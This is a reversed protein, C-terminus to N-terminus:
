DFANRNSWLPSCITVSSTSISCSVVASSWSIGSLADYTWQSYSFKPSRTSWLIVTLLTEPEESRLKQVAIAPLTVQTENGPMVVSWLTVNGFLSPKVIQVQQIDPEAGAERLQVLLM